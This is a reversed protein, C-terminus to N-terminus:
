FIFMLLKIFFLVATFEILFLATSNNDCYWFYFTFLILLGYSQTDRSIIMQHSEIILDIEDFRIMM